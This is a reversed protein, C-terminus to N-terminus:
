HYSSIEEELVYTRTGGHNPVTYNVTITVLVLTPVTTGNELLPTIAITRTFNELSVIVDDATGVIGDPGPETLCEVGAFPCVAGAATLCAVDDATGLIGDPGACKPSMATPLFVGPPSATTNAISSFGLQSTNRANFISEMAESAIQRALMDEQSTEAAGIMIGLSALTALLGIALIVMAFMVELLSFGSQDIQRLSAFRKNMM